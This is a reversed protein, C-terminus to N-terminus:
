GCLPEAFMRIPEEFDPRIRHYEPDYIIEKDAYWFGHKYDVSTSSETLGQRRADFVVLYGKTEHLPTKTRNADLYDALQSAGDRARSESFVQTIRGDDAMAKGLWKIEILAIRNTLMWTIKIDCPHSEDVIQEPRVEAGLVSTLFQWLSDRLLWEPGNKFFLRKGTEEDRWAMSLIKCQSTRVMSRKYRELADRLERFTVISFISAHAMSPNFIEKKNGQIVFHEQRSSYVYVIAHMSLEALDAATCKWLLFEGTDLIQIIATTLRYALNYEQALYEVRSFRQPELLCAPVEDDGFLRFVILSGSILDPEIFSYLRKLSEMMERLGASGRNGFAKEVALLYSSHALERLKDLNVSDM